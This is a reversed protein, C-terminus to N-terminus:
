MTRLFSGFSELTKLWDLSGFPGLPKFSVFPSSRSLGDFTGFPEYDSHMDPPSRHTGVGFRSRGSRKTNSKNSPQASICAWPGREWQGRSSAVVSSSDV